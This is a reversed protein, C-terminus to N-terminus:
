QVLGLTEAHLVLTNYWGERGQPDVHVRDSNIYIGIGEFTDVMTVRPEGISQFYEWAGRIRENVEMYASDGRPITELHVTANPCVELLYEAIDIYTQATADPTHNTGWMIYIATANEGMQAAAECFSLGEFEPSFAYYANRDVTPRINTDFFATVQSGCQVAYKADGILGTTKLYHEIFLFTQSDGIFLTGADFSGDERIGSHLVPAEPETPPESPPETEAAETTTPVTEQADGTEASVTTEPVTYEPATVVPDTPLPATKSCASVLLATTLLLVIVIIYRKM